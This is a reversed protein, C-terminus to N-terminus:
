KKSSRGPLNEDHKRMPYHGTMARLSKLENLLYNGLAWLLRTIRPPCTPPWCLARTGWQTKEKKLKNKAANPGRQQARAKELQLSRPSSKMATRPSRM